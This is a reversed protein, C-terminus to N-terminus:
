SGSFLSLSELTSSPHYNKNEKTLGDKKQELKVKKKIGTYLEELTVNVSVQVEPVDNEKQFFSKFMSFPDFGFPGGPGGTGEGGDTEDLGSFGFKDYADRKQADSLIAYAESIERFKKTAEEVNDQNKDPHWKRVLKRYSSKIQEETANKELELVKYLDQKSSM